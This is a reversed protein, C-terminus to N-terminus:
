GAGGPGPARRKRKMRSLQGCVLGPASLPTGSFKAMLSHPVKAGSLDTKGVSVYESIQADKFRTFSANSMDIFLRSIKAGTFDAGTLDSMVMGCVRLSANNFKARVATIHKGVNDKIRANTFDANTFNGTSMDSCYIGAGKFSAGTFNGGRMSTADFKAGDFKAGSFDTDAMVAHSLNAGSFDGGALDLHMLNFCQTAKLRATRVFECLADRTEFMRILTPSGPVGIDSIGLRYPAEPDGIIRRGLAIDTKVLDSPM